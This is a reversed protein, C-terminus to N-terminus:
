PRGFAIKLAQLDSRAAGWDEKEIKNSTRYLHELAVLVTLSNTRMRLVDSRLLYFAAQAEEKSKAEIATRALEYHEVTLADPAGAEWTPTSSCGALGVVLTATGLWVALRLRRYAMKCKTGNTRQDSASIQFRPDTLPRRTSSLPFASRTRIPEPATKPSTNPEDHNSTM